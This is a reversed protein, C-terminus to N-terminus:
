FDLILTNWWWEDPSLEEWLIYSMVDFVSLKSKRSLNLIKRLTLEPVNVSELTISYSEYM